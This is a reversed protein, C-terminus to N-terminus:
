AEVLATDLESYRNLRISNLELNRRTDSNILEYTTLVKDGAFVAFWLCGNHNVIEVQADQPCGPQNKIWQEVSEKWEEM